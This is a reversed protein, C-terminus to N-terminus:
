PSFMEAIAIVRTKETGTSMVAAIMARIIAQKVGNTFAM